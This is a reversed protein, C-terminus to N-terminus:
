ARAASRERIVGIALAIWAIAQLVFLILIRGIWLRRGMEYEPLDVTESVIWSIVLGSGCAFIAECLFLLGSVRVLPNGGKKNVILLISGALNVLSVCTNFVAIATGFDQWGVEPLIFKYLLHIGSSRLISTAILLVGIRHWNKTGAFGILLVGIIIPLNIIIEIFFLGVHPTSDSFFLSYFGIDLFFFSNFGMEDYFFILCMQYIFYLTLGVLPLFFFVAPVGSSPRGPAAPSVSTQPNM